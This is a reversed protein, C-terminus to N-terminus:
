HKQKSSSSGGEEQLDVTQDIVVGNENTVTNQEHVIITTRNIENNYALMLADLSKQLKTAQGQLKTILAEIAKQDSIEDLNNYSSNAKYSNLIEQARAAIAQDREKKLQELEATTQAVIPSTPQAIKYALFVAGALFVAIGLKGQTTKIADSFKSIDQLTVGGIGLIMGSGGILLSSLESFSELKAQVTAINQLLEPSAEAKKMQELLEKLSAIEANIGLISENLAKAAEVKQNENLRGLRNNLVSVYSDLGNVIEQSLQGSKTLKEVVDAKAIGATTNLIMMVAIAASMKKKM